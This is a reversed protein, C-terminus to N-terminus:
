QLKARAHEAALGLVRYAEVWNKRGDPTVTEPNTGATKTIFEAVVEGLKPYTKSLPVGDMVRWRGVIRKEDLQIGTEILPKDQKGDREIAKSFATCFAAFSAADHIAEERNPNSAFIEALSPANDPLPELKSSSEGSGWTKLAVLVVVIAALSALLMHPFPNNKSAPM